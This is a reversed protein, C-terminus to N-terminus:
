MQHRTYPIQRNSPLRDSEAQNFKNRSYADDGPRLTAAAVYAEEDLFMSAKVLVGSSATDGISVAGQRGVMVGAGNGRIQSGGTEPTKTSPLVVLSDKM